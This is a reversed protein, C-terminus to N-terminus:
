QSGLAADLAVGYLIDHESVEVEDLGFAEMVRVLIQTGALITPARDPHLGAVERREAEPLSAMRDAIERCRELSVRHGHVALPDYPELELDIAAMSTATGAVAVLTKVHERESQPVAESLVEDIEGRLESIEADTPPDHAIHRESQRVVGLQTSVHFGVARGHGIILETSGGGIDVVVIRDGDGPDRGSTAGLFSLQAEREGPIASADLSFREAVEATFQAGNAADRTASTLVARRQDAGGLEDIMASYDALTAFVREMAEDSLVGTSDVGVGLRTVESRRALETISGDAAVDALLLRTSNTGIDIVAIRM